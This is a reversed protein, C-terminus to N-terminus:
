YDIPVSEGGAEIKGIDSFLIDVIIIWIGKFLGPHLFAPESNGIQGDLLSDQIEVGVAIQRQTALHAIQEVLVIRVDLAVRHGTSAKDQTHLVGELFDATQYLSGDKAPVLEIRQAIAM